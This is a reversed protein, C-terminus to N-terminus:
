DSSPDDQEHLVVEFVKNSAFTQDPNADPAAIGGFIWGVVARKKGSNALLEDLNVLGNELTPTGPKLFLRAEAGFRLATGTPGAVPPFTAKLLYQGYQRNADRVIATVQNTFPLEDDSVFKASQPDFYVYTIGGFLITHSQKLSASYLGLTVCDYINMGQKFTTSAMPDAQTPRGDRGVETPVTFFGNGATFVGALAAATTKQSAGVGDVALMLTYDRRRFNVLDPIEPEARVGRISVAKGNDVIRFSRVQGTYTQVPAVPGGYGGEFDHGFILLARGGIVTMQGGTVRLTEDSTQRILSALDPADVPDRVWDILQPLGIATLLPYTQFQAVSRTYGYGGVIYLVDGVQAHQYASASLQDIQDTTLSSEALPRSWVQWRAPDIVYVVRNQEEPPFNKLPDDTFQHRGNLRGGIMVWLGAYSGAAFSQLNPAATVAEVPRLKIKYPLAAGDLVPSTTPTQNQAHASSAVLATSSLLLFLALAMMRKPLTM